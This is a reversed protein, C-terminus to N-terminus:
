KQYHYRHLSMKEAKIIKQLVVNKIILMQFGYLIMFKISILDVEM